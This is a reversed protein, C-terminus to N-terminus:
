ATREIDGSDRTEHTSAAVYDDLNSVTYRVAGGLKSYRPGLKRWRWSQLTKTSLTLYEAAQEENLLEM